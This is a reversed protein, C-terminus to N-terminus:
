KGGETSSVVERSRLDGSRSDPHSWHVKLEDDSWDVYPVDGDSDRSGSCLTWNQTDLHQGTKKFYELEQLLREELTQTDTGKKKVDNASLGKNEEDAEM